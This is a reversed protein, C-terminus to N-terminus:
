LLKKAKYLCYINVNVSKIKPSTMEVYLVNDKLKTRKIKMFTMPKIIVHDPLFGTAINYKEITKDFIFVVM